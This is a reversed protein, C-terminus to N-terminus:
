SNLWEDFSVYPLGLDEMAQVYILYRDYLSM